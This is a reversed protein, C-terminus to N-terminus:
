PCSVGVLWSDYYDSGDVNTQTWAVAGGTPNSSTVMNGHADVAVCLTSAPCSVSTFLTSTGPDQHDVLVPAGWTLPGAPATPTPPPRPSTSPSPSPSASLESSPSPSTVPSAPAPPTPSLRTASAPSAGSTPGCAVAALLVALVFLRMVTSRTKGGFIVFGLLAQFLRGQDVTLM